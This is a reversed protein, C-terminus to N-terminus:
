ILIDVFKKCIYFYCFAGFCLLSYVIAQARKFGPPMEFSELPKVFRPKSVPISKKHDPQLLFSDRVKNLTNLGLKVLKSDEKLNHLEDFDSEM